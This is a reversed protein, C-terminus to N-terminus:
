RALSIPTRDCAQRAARLKGDAEVRLLTVKGKRTSLWRARRQGQRDRSEMRLLGAHAEDAAVVCEGPLLEVDGLGLVHGHDPEAVV